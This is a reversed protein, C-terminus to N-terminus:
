SVHRDDELRHLTELWQVADASGKHNIIYDQRMVEAHKWFSYMHTVLLPWTTTERMAWNLLRVCSLHSLGTRALVETALRSWTDECHAFRAPHGLLHFLHAAVRRGSIIRIDPNMM